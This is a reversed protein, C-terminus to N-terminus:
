KTITVFAFPRDVLADNEPTIQINMKKVITSPANLYLNLIAQQTTEPLGSKGMWDKVSYKPMVGYDLKAKSQGHDWSQTILEAMQPGTWLHRGAEKINFVQKEFYQVEPDVAVYEGILFRGSPKLIRHVEMLTEPINPLHHFVMRATVLDASNNALPIRLTDAVFLRNQPNPTGCHLMEPSIDFGILHGNPVHPAISKLVTQSGTGIDVVTENGQLNAMRVLADLPGPANVWGLQDYGGAQGGAARSTWMDPKFAPYKSTSETVSM